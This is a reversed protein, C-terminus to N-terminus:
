RAIDFTSVALLEQAKSLRLSRVYRSISLGTLATLKLYLTTRSMSAQAKMILMLLGVRSSFGFGPALIVREKLLRVTQSQTATSCRLLYM